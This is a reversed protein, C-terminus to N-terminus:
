AMLRVASMLALAQDSVGVTSATHTCTYAFVIGSDPDAALISGGAGQHGFSRGGFYPCFGHSLEVGSGYRSIHALSRDPGQRRETIMHDIAVNSLLPKAQGLGLAHNLIRGLARASSVGSLAPWNARQVRPDTFFGPGNQMIPLFSGDPITQGSMIQRAAGETLIPPSFSLKALQPLVESPAGFWFGSGAPGVIHQAVYDQVSVGAGHQFVGSMLAGFTFAHYGHQTGPEWFPDQEAVARDLEGALWDETSLPRVVGSIGSSHDLVMRATITQTAPRDFVPWYSSMTLDLNLVGAEHAHAAALAVMLKSVSFVQVPTETTMSGGAIDVLTEGHRSVFLQAGGHIRTLCRSFVERLEQGEPSHTGTVAAIPPLQSAITEM